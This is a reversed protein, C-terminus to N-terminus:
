APKALKTQLHVRELLPFPMHFSCCVIVVVKIEEVLPHPTWCDESSQHNTFEAENPFVYEHMFDTLKNHLQQVRSPLCDLDMPLAGIFFVVVVVVSCLM